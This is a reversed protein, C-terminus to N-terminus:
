ICICLLEVLAAVPMRSRAEANASSLFLPAIPVAVLFKFPKASASWAKVGTADFALLIFLM